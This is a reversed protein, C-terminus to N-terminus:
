ASAIEVVVEPLGTASGDPTVILRLASNQYVEVGGTRLIDHVDGDNAVRVRGSWLRRLVHLNFTGVTSVSSTVSEIKQIGSDGAAFPLQLMRAAPPALGTAIAGTTAGTNGDQDTYNVRITQLGTFATATEMWLELGSYNAGPVRASFSPQGALTTNANFAYSGCTFLTDYLTMRAAVTNGFEIKSIRGQAGGAFDKIIPYGVTADTPVFGAATFALATTVGAGPNGSRDFVSTPMAASSSQSQTKQYGVRTMAAALLQDLTAIAM